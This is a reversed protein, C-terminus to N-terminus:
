LNLRTVVMRVTLVRVVRWRWCPVGRELQDAAAKEAEVQAEAETEKPEGIALWRGTGRADYEVEYRCSRKEDPKSGYQDRINKATTM